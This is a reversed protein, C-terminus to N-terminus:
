RPHRGARRSREPPWRTGTAVEGGAVEAILRAARDAARVVGSRDVGREFRYSSETQLGHRRATLRVVTPHFHASEILVDVTDDGVETDSGGMVGALAVPREADCIVLDKPDLERTEGDLCTLKEGAAARRVGIRAGRIEALDFAHLPQGFELLVLNTVDVVNNISRIGSAELRHNLWEPSPGVRVGRVVRAVYHHCGESADISVAIAESAAAGKEEPATEPIRVAGGILASVERALGLISASDGRNPTIGFELARSGAGMVESLSAGLSASPDLVLIGDHDDDLGLERASCIMGNSVVGRIKTKKLKTGDPLRMGVRAVAVKQGAAVNPAGCVIGVPEGSGLEVRCLSLRDANPHQERSAVQGVIVDSLDPGTAEIEADEFGGLNLRDVLEQDGPLEVFEALWDLPVRM